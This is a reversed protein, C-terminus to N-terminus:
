LKILEDHCCDGDILDSHRIFKAKKQMACLCLDNNCFVKCFRRIGYAEFIEAYACRTIKYELKKGDSELLEYTLSEDKMHINADNKLFDVVKEYGRSMSDVIVIVMRLMNRKSKAIHEEWIEQAEELTLGIELCIQAFTIAAYILELTMSTYKLYEEFEKSCLHNMYRNRYMHELKKYDERGIKKMAKAFLKSYQNMWKVKKEM